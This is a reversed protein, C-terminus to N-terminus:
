EDTSVETALPDTPDDTQQSLLRDFAETLTELNDCDLSMHPREENYFILFERQGHEFTESLRPVTDVLAEPGTPENDVTRVTLVIIM